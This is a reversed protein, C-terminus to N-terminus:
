RRRSIKRDANRVTTVALRFATSLAAETACGAVGVAAASVAAVRDRLGSQGAVLRFFHQAAAVASGSTFYRHGALMDDPLYTAGAVAFWRRRREWAHSAEDLTRVTETSLQRVHSLDVVLADTSDFASGDRLSRGLHRAVADHDIGEILTVPVRVRSLHRVEVSM